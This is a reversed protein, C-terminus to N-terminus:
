KMLIMKKTKEFSGSKLKYFYIGSSVSKGNNDKGNWVVSHQGVSLQDSVLQKVKQGKINYIALEVKCNEPLQYSITTTPNFPNPFNQKLYDDTQVIAIDEIGQPIEYYFRGIDVISGDPDPPSNPDGADICPSDVLIHFDDNAPDVFLPDLLINMFEDCPDGNANTDDIVGLTPPILPGDFNPGESNYFDCYDFTVASTNFFVSGNTTNGGIISNVVTAGGSWCNIQSGCGPAENDYITCNTIVSTSNIEIGGGDVSAYNGYISTYSLSVDSNENIFVGGGYTGAHNDNITCDRVDVSADYARFGGGTLGASNGYIHCNEITTLYTGSGFIVVLGGTYTGATNNCIINNVLIPSSIQVLIGGCVENATNNSIINGDVYANSNAYLCLGGMNVTATNYSIVNNLLIPLSNYICLVGGAKETSNNRVINSVIKPSSNDCLIGGGCYYGFDQLFTGTGETVTFGTIVSTTDEGSLFMVCSGFDPNTPQSGNIITNEIHLTDADILFNSAVTIAKGIFDINEFYTGEAVLVTDTDTAADIAEQITLYDDPVNIITSYLCTSVLVLSLIFKKM